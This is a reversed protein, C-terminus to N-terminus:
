LFRKFQEKIKKVSEFLEDDYESYSGSRGREYGMYLDYADSAADPMDEGDSPRPYRRVPPNEKKPKNSVPKLAKQQEKEEDSMPYIQKIEGDATVGTLIHHGTVPHTTVNVYRINMSQAWELRKILNDVRM